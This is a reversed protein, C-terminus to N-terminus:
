AAVFLGASVFEEHFSFRGTLPLPAHAAFAISRAASISFSGFQRGWDHVEVRADHFGL